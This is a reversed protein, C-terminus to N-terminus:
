MGATQGWSFWCVFVGLHLAVRLWPCDWAKGESFVAALALIDVGVAKGESCVVTPNPILLLEVAGRYTLVELLM